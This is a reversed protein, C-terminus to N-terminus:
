SARWGSSKKRSVATAPSNATASEAQRQMALRLIVGLKAHLMERSAPKCLYSDAGAELARMQTAEDLSGTFV